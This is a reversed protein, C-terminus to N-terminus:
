KGSPNIHIRNSEEGRVNIDVGYVKRLGREDLVKGPPGCNLFIGDKLLGLRDSYNAALNLDHLAQIVTLGDKALSKVTKMIKVQYSIDLNATPEDLVMLDPQQALALALFVRQKEGGSLEKISRDYLSGLDTKSIAQGLVERDAEGFGEFRNLHPFRGMEIIDSVLFDFGVSNEQHVMAIRRSLDGHNLDRIERGDLIVSGRDPKLLGTINKLLTTKGSGNPGVVTFLEGDKVTFDIKELIIKKGYGFSLGKVELM